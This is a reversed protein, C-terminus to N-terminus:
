WMAVLNSATTGAALVRSAIVPLIVGAPVSKFVVATGSEAGNVSIDGTTGVYIGRCPTTLDVADNPTITAVNPASASTTGAVFGPFPM